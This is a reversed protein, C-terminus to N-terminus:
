GGQRIIDAINREALAAITLSPNVAGANGPVLAGDLVYLGAHGQVRGFTDTARGLVAGGLPHATWDAGTVPALVQGWGPRTGTAECIRQNVRQAEALAVANGSPAWDLVVQGRAADFRFRGRHERDFTMALSRTVGMDLPALPLYWNELTVPMDGQEDHIMSACPAAQAALGLVASGSRTTIADGNTGWGEGVHENLQSLTGQARAKVLLQSTGVSGAALYLKDATLVRREIVEGDPAMVDLAVVYRGGERGITHVVHGPHLGVRGTAEAQPLYNQNLDFKAGNSNGFNSLGATASPRSRGRLEDRVVSWNFISDVSQPTYGARRAQADWVRSHGFPASRYVDDPMASLRLMARVKPFHVRNMEEFSVQGGFLADFYRQRPPIMVGTFVVSGGGVCAGRLVQMTDFDTTDLVGGFPGDLDLARLLGGDTLKERFWLARGDVMLESAFIARWPDSPWRFGRELVTVPEGAQSLRLAAVAGGFGSGIVLHRSHSPARPSPRFIEPVQLRYRALNLWSLGGSGGQVPM